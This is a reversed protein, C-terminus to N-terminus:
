SSKSENDDGNLTKYLPSDYAKILKYHDFYFEPIVRLYVENFNTFIHQVEYSYGGAFFSNEIKKKVRFTTGTNTKWVQGVKVM